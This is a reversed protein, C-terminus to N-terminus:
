INNDNIINTIIESVEDAKFYVMLHGGNEVEIPNQAKKLPFVTDKTGHILIPNLDNPLSQKWGALNKVAWRFYKNELNSSSEQFIPKMEDKLGTNKGWMWFTGKMTIKHVWIDLRLTRVLHLGNSLSEKSTISSILIVKTTPIIRAIEQVIVGGFSHGILVLEKAKRMEPTILREAYSQISEKSSPTIWSLHIIHDSPLQLKEFIKANCGFGPMLAILPTAVTPNEKM